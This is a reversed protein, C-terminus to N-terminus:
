LNEFSLSEVLRPDRIPVLAASRLLAGLVALFLGGVAVLCTLDLLSLRVGEAHLNPMVLWYLDLLHMLLMWVAGALLLPPRRKIGRPMLFFFPVVFHGMALLLTALKWSGELRRLFFTTEEPLNAYWILFFQSFAIYAWFVTFAFLLKGLDHFHELTVVDRLCGSGRLLVTLVCLFAFCSVVSGSFFYVGFMTSYWHADLAMIWDFAAFTLTLAFVLLAPGSWRIMQRSLGEEATRDQRRSLRLFLLSLFSWAVCYIAARLLFGATSLYASKAQLLPDHAVAAADTWHYLEHRGLYIPVFLVLLVPLCAAINEALRRVVVGWGAKAAHHVLVFFLAGLSISLFFLFAVLWSHYFQAPQRAALLASAGAGALGVVLGFWRLNAWGGTAPLYLQDTGISRSHDSM